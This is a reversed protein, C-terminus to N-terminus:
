GIERYGSSWMGILAGQLRDVLENKNGLTSLGRNKLEKKLDAVQLDFVFGFVFLVNKKGQDYVAAVVYGAVLLTLWKEKKEQSAVKALDFLLRAFRLSVKMKSVDHDSM